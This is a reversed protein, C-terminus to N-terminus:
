YQLQLKKSETITWDIISKAESLLGSTEYDGWFGGCNDIFNGEKDEVKFYYVEGNCWQNMLECAQRAYEIVKQRRKAGSFGKLNDLLCKDPFWVAWTHSTDFQCQMGEGSVSYSISSHEYKDIRVADKNDSKIKQRTEINYGLLECYKELEEKGHDRWHYFVGNGECDEFPNNRGEDYGINIIYGKYEVKNEM